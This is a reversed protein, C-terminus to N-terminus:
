ETSCARLLLGLDKRRRAAIAGDGSGVPVDTRGAHGTHEGLRAHPVGVLVIADAELLKGLDRELVVQMRREVRQRLVLLLEAEVLDHTRGHHTVRVGQEHTARGAVPRRGGHENGALPELRHRLLDLLPGHLNGSGDQRRVRPRRRRLDLGVDVREGAVGCRLGILLRANPGVIEVEDFEVVAEGGGLQDM